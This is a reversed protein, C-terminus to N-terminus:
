KQIGIIKPKLLNFVTNHGKPSWHKGKAPFTEADKILLTNIGIKKAFFQLRTDKSTLVLLFKANNKKVRQYFAKILAHTPDRRFRRARPQIRSIAYDVVKTLFVSKTYKRVEPVYYNRSKPVSTNHLELKSSNLTFYPKHYGKNRITSRNDYRDNNTCFVLVVIGPKFKDITDELLLLEQDTGFGSVGFNLAEIKNSNNKLLEIFSEDEEVDYGWVFSDGYFAIRTKNKDIELPFEAGRFGQSNHRIKFNRSGLYSGVSNKKPFWGYRDHHQYLLSREDQTTIPVESLLNRTFVECIGLAMASSIFLLLLALFFNKM